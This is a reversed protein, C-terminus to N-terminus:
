IIIYVYGRLDLSDLLRKPMEECEPFVQNAATIAAEIAAESASMAKSLGSPDELVIDFERHM